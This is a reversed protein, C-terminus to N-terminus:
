ARGGAHLLDRARFYVSTDPPLPDDLPEGGLQQNIRDCRASIMRLAFLRVDQPAGTLWGSEIIADILENGTEATVTRLYKLFRVLRPESQLVAKTDRRKMARYSRSLRERERAKKELPSLAMIQGRKVKTERRGAQQGYDAFANM